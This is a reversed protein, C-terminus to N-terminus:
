VLLAPLHKLTHRRGAEVVNDYDAMVAVIAESIASPDDLRSVICKQLVDEAGFMSPTTSSVIAPVGLMFSELALFGFTETISVALTITMSALLQYFEERKKYYPHVKYGIGLQGLLTGDSINQLHLTTVGPTIFAALIQTDHNKWPMGTGFLGLHVGPLKSVPRTLNIPAITNREYVVNIGQIMSLSSAMGEHPTSIYDAYGQRLAVLIHILSQRNLADFEHLVPTAHCTIEIESGVQQKLHRALTFCRPLFGGFIIKKPRISTAMAIANEPTAMHTVRPELSHKIGQWDVPVVGLIYDNCRVQPTVVEILTKKEKVYTTGALLEEYLHVYRSAMTTASFDVTTPQYRAGGIIAAIGQEVDKKNKAIYAHEGHQLYHCVGGCDLIVSPLGCALAEAIALGFGEKPSCSVFFDWRNYCTAVDSTFPLVTINSDRTQKGYGGFDYGVLEFDVPMRQIVDVLTQVGKGLGSELRGCYGGLLREKGRRQWNPYFKSTDVGNPIVLTECDTRKSLFHAQADPSVCVLVDTKEKGYTSCDWGFSTRNHAVEVVKAQLVMKAIAGYVLPSHYFQIIDPRFEQIVKALSNPSFVRQRSTPRFNKLIYTEMQSKEFTIMVHCTPPLNNVLYQVQTEAGGVVEGPIHYLIKM